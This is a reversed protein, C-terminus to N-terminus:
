GGGPEDKSLPLRIRFTTGGQRNEECSVRGGMSEVLSYVISLGLGSHDGGKTGVFPEFM